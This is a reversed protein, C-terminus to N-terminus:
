INKNAFSDFGLNLQQDPFQVAGIRSQSYGTERQSESLKRQLRVEVSVVQNRKHKRDETMMRCGVLGCIFGSEGSRILM